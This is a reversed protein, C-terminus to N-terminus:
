LPRGAARRPGWPGAREHIKGGFGASKRGSSRQSGCGAGGQYAAAEPSIDPDLGGASSSVLDAPPLGQDPNKKRIRALASRTADILKKSTPGLNTGGSQMPDYGSGAASPRPHFYGPKSFNQGALASGIVTGHADRYLSGEAQAPFLRQALITVLAPYLMGFLAVSLITYLTSRVLDMMITRSLSSSHEAQSKM